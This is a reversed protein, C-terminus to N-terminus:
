LLKFNVMCLVLNPDFNPCKQACIRTRTSGRMAALNRQSILSAWVWKRFLIKLTKPNEFIKPVLVAELTKSWLRRFATKPM